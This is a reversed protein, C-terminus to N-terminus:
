KSNPKSIPMTMSKKNKMKKHRHPFVPTYKPKLKFWNIELQFNNVGM